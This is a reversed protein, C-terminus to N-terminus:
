DPAGRKRQPKDNLVSIRFDQYFPYKERTKETQPGMRVKFRANEAGDRRFSELKLIVETATERRKAQTKLAVQGEKQDVEVQNILMDSNAPLLLFVEHLVDVWVLQDEDFSRIEDVLSIFKKNEARGVSMKKNETELRRLLARDASTYQNFGVAGASIFLVTVAAALPAKKLRKQTVSVTRKPHLFDFHGADGQAHGLVLGLSAAFAAAGAGEDPEWDFTSAPNYLETTIKLRSQIAEALAEEVGVDGGVVVHDISAGPDGARYAEISRTVEVMLSDIVRARRTTPTGGPRTLPTEQPLPLEGADSEPRALSFVSTDELSTPVTVSASRSFVLAGERVVDIEMFTPRVDIFLVRDPMAHHLFQTVATKNAYPRLGVRDLRLDAAEFTAQYQELLERRIAAVLVDGTPEDPVDREVTFDIVADGAPFPLEKAIQIEVMGPLADRQTTPLKLTKLIAQDRPVDVIAHRVSIGEQELTRRIHRGMLKPNDPDLDTPIGVSLLREIKLGRKTFQAYVIRLTRPDWDVAV